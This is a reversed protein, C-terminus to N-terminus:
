YQAESSYRVINEYNSGSYAYYSAKTRYRYGKSVSYDQQLTGKFYNYSETWTKIVRWSGNSYQELYMYIQIQTTLDQYGTISATCTGVGSQSISISTNTKSTYDYFPVIDNLRQSAVANVPLSNATLICLSFVIILCISKKKM